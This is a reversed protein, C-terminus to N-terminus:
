KVGRCPALFTSKNGSHSTCLMASSINAFSMVGSSASCSHSSFPSSIISSILLRLRLTVVHVSKKANKVNMSAQMPSPSHGNLGAAGTPPAKLAKILTESLDLNHHFLLRHPWKGSQFFCHIPVDSHIHRFSAPLPYRSSVAFSYLM